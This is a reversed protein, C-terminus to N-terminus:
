TFDRFEENTIDQRRFLLCGNIHLVHFMPSSWVNLLGSRFLISRHHVFITSRDMNMISAYLVQELVGKTTTIIEALRLSHLSFFTFVSQVRRVLWGEQAWPLKWKCSGVCANCYNFVMFLYRCYFEIQQREFNSCNKILFLPFSGNLTRSANKTCQFNLNVQPCRQCRQSNDFYAVSRLSWLLWM